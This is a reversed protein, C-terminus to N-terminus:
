KKAWKRSFGGLRLLHSWRASDSDQGLKSKSSSSSSACDSMSTRAASKHGDLKLLPAFSSESLSARNCLSQRRSTAVRCRLRTALQRIHVQASLLEGTATRHSKMESKGRM